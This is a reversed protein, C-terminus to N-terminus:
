WGEGADDDGDDRLAEQCRCGILFFPQPLAICWRKGGLGARPAGADPQVPTPRLPTAELTPPSHAAGLGVAGAASPASSDELQPPPLEDLVSLREAAWGLQEWAHVVAQCLGMPGSVVGRLHPEARAITAACIRGQQWVARGGCMVPVPGESICHVLNFDPHKQLLGDFVDQYLVDAATRNCLVLQVTAGQPHENLMARCIQLAVTVSSGGSIMLLGSYGTIDLTPQPPSVLLRCGPRLSALWSSMKGDPYVKVMLELIGQMYEQASSVPTYARQVEEGYDLERIVDVHWVDGVAPHRLLAASADARLVIRLCDHNMRTVSDICWELAGAEEEAVEEVPAATLDPEVQRQLSKSDADTAASKAATAELLGPVTKGSCGAKARPKPKPLKAESHTQAMEVASRQLRTLQRKVAAKNIGKGCELVVSLAQAGEAPCKSAELANALALQAQAWTPVLKVAQRADDLANNLHEKLLLRRSSRLVSARGRVRLAGVWGPM